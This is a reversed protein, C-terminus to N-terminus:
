DGSLRVIRPLLRPTRPDSCTQKFLEVSQKPDLSQEPVATGIDHVYCATAPPNKVGRVKLGARSGM